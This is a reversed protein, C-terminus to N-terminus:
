EVIRIRGQPELYDNSINGGLNKELFEVLVDRYLIDFRQVVKANKLVDYFGGGTVCYDITAITYTKNLDLPKILSRKEIGLLDNERSLKLIDASFDAHECLFSVVM